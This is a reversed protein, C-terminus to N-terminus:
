AGVSVLQSVDSNVHTHFLTRVLLSRRMERLLGNMRECEQLAVVTYPTRQEVKAYLDVLSFEDPLQGLIEDM